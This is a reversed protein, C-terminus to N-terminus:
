RGSPPEWGVGLDQAVRGLRRDLTWLRAGGVLAAALLNVDIWGLGRAWLRRETVLAMAEDHSVAAVRPLTQMLTLVEDRRPLSGCALEGLVFEHCEVDGRDLAAALAPHSRRFHDIWVSTDVLV